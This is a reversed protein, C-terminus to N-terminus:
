ARPRRYVGKKRRVRGERAHRLERDRKCDPGCLHVRRYPSVAPKGCEWCPADDPPLVRGTHPPDHPVSYTFESMMTEEEDDTM